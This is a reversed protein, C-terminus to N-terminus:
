FCPCHKKKIKNFNIDGRSVLVIQDILNPIITELLLSAKDKEMEMEDIIKKLVKLVLDKKYSGNNKKKIIDQVLEMLHITFSSINSFNIESNNKIWKKALKYLKDINKDNMKKIKTNLLIKQFIKNFVFFHGKKWFIANKM